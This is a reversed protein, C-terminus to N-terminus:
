AEAIAVATVSRALVTVHATIGIFTNNAEAPDISTIIAKWIWVKQDAALATEHPVGDRRWIYVTDGINLGSILDEDAQGTAKILLDDISHTTSGPLQESAPDCLWDISESDTSSTGNMTTISCDLGIGTTLESLVPNNIDEVAPAVGVAVNGRSIQTSPNWQTIPAM